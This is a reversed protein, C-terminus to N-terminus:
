SDRTSRIADPASSRTLESGTHLQDSRLYPRPPRERRLPTAILPARFADSTHGLDNERGNV